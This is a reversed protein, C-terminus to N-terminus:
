NEKIRSNSEAYVNFGLERYVRYIEYELLPKEINRIINMYMKGKYSLASVNYPAYAQSGLVFDMREIHREMEEPLSVGGLNSFSFCSKREGVSMYVLKMVINKLFLPALRMAMPKEDGVNKAIMAAMNKDTIQLQMQHHVIKIIEDFDYEGLRPDVSSTAYLAFNRLTESPFIKRLNVPIVVKVPKYRRKSRVSSEQVRMAAVTLAAVTYVTLTVNKERARKLMEDCDFIFTTNTRYGDKERKDLIRFSDTDSRSMKYKGAYRQFSDETEEPRPEEEMSLVGGECPVDHGYRERIYEAALSKLFVFGGNGDTLAHFFEVAMRNKWVVVRFACKRIDDFPMKSLPYPKEDLIEPAKPIQEIYYWFFGPRVRVAISPFRKVAKDLAAELCPIDIEDDFTASLRFLNSWNRRRAAPFIKAANDLSMWKLRKM